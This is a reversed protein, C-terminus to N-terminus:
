PRIRMRSARTGRSSPTASMLPRAPAAPWTLARGWSRPLRLPKILHTPRYQVRSVNPHASRLIRTEHLLVTSTCHQRNRYLKHRTKSTVMYQTLVRRRVVESRPGTLVRMFTCHHLRRLSREQRLVGPVQPPHAMQSCRTLSGWCSAGPAQPRLVGGVGVGWLLHCWTKPTWPRVLDRTVDVDCM